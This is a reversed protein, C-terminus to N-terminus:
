RDPPPVGIETKYTGHRFRSRHPRDVATAGIGAPDVMEHRNLTKADPISISGQYSRGNGEKHHLLRGCHAAPWRCDTEAPLPLM